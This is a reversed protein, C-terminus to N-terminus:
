NKDIVEFIENELNKLKNHYFLLLALDESKLIGDEIYLVKRNHFIGLTKIGNRIIDELDQDLDPSLAVKNQAALEELVAKISKLHELFDSIPIDFEEEPMQVLSVEDQSHNNKKFLSFSCYAVLHCPLIYNYKKYQNVIAEALEKTYISERQADHIFSGERVFYDKLEISNGLHNISVGESTVKNGFVDLPNGFTLYVKSEKKMLGWIFNIYERLPSSKDKIMFKEQGTSRLHQIILSRAELVSEYGIVVPVIIIKRKDNKNLLNRQALLVSNLLGLKLKMEVEGSRSRTGGPFFITNVGREAILRSYTSLTHLYIQNKKRRDVRYAGLRNMFFAFFESDFLNLGAGYSFAPLGGFTDVMYGVLISDLNSSHTPVLIITHKEFLKRVTEIEGNIIMKKELRKLKHKNSRFLNFSFPYYLFHFFFTLVKRAFHFTAINFSGAIEETYRHILRSATAKNKVISNDSEKNENYEKQLKKFYLNENPPDAKWPNSKVRQREQFITKNLIQDLESSSYQSFQQELDNVVFQVFEEREKALKYVPWEHIDPFLHERM